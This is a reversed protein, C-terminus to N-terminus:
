AGGGATAGRDSPTAMSEPAGLVAPAAVIGLDAGLADGVPAAGTQAEYEQEQASGAAGVAGPLLPVSSGGGAPVPQTAPTAQTVAEAVPAQVPVPTQYATKARPIAGLGFGAPRIMGVTGPATSGAVATAAAQGSQEAELAAASVLAPPERQEWPMALPETAAEYARMVRSATAKAVDSDADTRAAVAQIPAGLGATMAELLRKAEALAALEGGDPMALRAVEYAAAQTQAKVAHDAAASAAEMLWDRLRSVRDLVDRSTTSQWAGRLSAVIQEYEVVATGFSEALRGWAAGAEALPVAGPGTTLERAMREPEVAEWVVGTFGPQPPEIM